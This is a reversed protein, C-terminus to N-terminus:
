QRKECSTGTRGQGSQDKEPKSLNITIDMTGFETEVTWKEDKAIRDTRIYNTAQSFRYYYDTAEKPSIAYKEAFTKRVVSPLPTLLGMIKTDFLDKNVTTDEPLIEQEHAYQMIDELILYLERPQESQKPPRYDNKKLLELLANTVYIEDGPDVLGSQLGYTVLECILQDIM